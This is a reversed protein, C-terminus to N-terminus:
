TMSLSVHSIVTGIAPRSTYHLKAWNVRLQKDVRKQLSFCFDTKGIYLFLSRPIKVSLSAAPSSCLLVLHEYSPEAKGQTVSVGFRRYLPRTSPLVLAPRLAPMTRSCQQCFILSFSISICQSVRKVGGGWYEYWNFCGYQKTEKWKFVKKAVVINEYDKLPRLPQNAPSTMAGMNTTFFLLM